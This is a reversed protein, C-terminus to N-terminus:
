EPCPLLARRLSLTGSQSSRTWDREAAKLGARAMRAHYRVSVAEQGLSSWAYLGEHNSGSNGQAFHHELYWAADTLSFDQTYGPRDRVRDPGNLAKARDIWEPEYRDRRFMDNHQDFRQIPGVLLQQYRRTESVM